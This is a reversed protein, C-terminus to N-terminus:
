TFHYPTTILHWQQPLVRSGRSFQKVKRAVHLTLMCTSQIQTSMWLRHTTYLRARACVRVYYLINKLPPLAIPGACVPYLTCTNMKPSPPCDARCVCVCVTCYVLILNLPLLAIPGACVRYLICTNMKPSPPCDARCVCPVIYENLPLLAIPGACVCVTCFIRKLPLFAIPGTM